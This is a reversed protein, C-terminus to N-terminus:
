TCRASNMRAGLYALNQMVPKRPLPDEASKAVPGIVAIGSASLGRGGQTAGHEPMRKAKHNGTV